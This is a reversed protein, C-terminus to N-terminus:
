QLESLKKHLREVEEHLNQMSELYNNYMDEDLAVKQVEDKQSAFSLDGHVMMKNRKNRFLEKLSVGGLDMNLVSEVGDLLSDHNKAKLIRYFVGGHDERDDTTIFMTCILHTLGFNHFEEEIENVIPSSSPYNMAFILMKCLRMLREIDTLEKLKWM